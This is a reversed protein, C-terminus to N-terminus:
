LMFDMFKLWPFVSKAAKEVEKSCSSPSATTTVGSGSSSSGIENGSDVVSKKSCLFFNRSGLEMLKGERDLSELSFQSYHLDFKSPDASVIPRRGEKTYQRIAFAILDSVTSEPSMLIQVAGVSGQITVNLLLKTLKPRAETSVGATRRGGLLDPLTNPRHIRPKPVDVPIRGHFSSAKETLRNKRSKESDQGKRNSKPTTPM